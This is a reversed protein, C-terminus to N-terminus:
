FHLYLSLACTFIEQIQAPLMGFISTLQFVSFAIAIISVILNQKGELRRYSSEKDIEALFDDLEEQTMEGVM